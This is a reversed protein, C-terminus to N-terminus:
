WLASDTDKAQQIQQEMFSVRESDESAGKSLNIKFDTAKASKPIYNAEKAMRKAINEKTIRKSRISILKNGFHLALPHLSSPLSATIGELAQIASKTPSRTTKTTPAPTTLDIMQTTTIPDTGVSKQRSTTASTATQNMTTLNVCVLCAGFVLM